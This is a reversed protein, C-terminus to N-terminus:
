RLQAEEEAETAIRVWQIRSRVLKQVDRRPLRRVTASRPNVVLVEGYLETDEGRSNVYGLRVLWEKHMALDLLDGIESPDRAIQAPRSSEPELLHLQPFPEDHGSAAPPPGPRKAPAAPRPSPHRLRGVLAPIDTPDALEGGNALIRRLQGAVGAASAGSPIGTLAALLEPDDLMESMLANPDEDRADPTPARRVAPRTLVLTGDPREAAALYGAQRLGGVVMLPEIDSVAITPALLQLRLHATKRARVVEALLAPDESRLYCAATGVRVQGFRRALDEVLYAVSQPIGKPAHDSLFAMIEDSQRGADFARRLSAESFRFTTAGGKSEMDALLDLEARVDPALEGTAIATMDAQLILERTVPPLLSDIVAVAADPNDTIMERGFSSLSAAATIALLDTEELVWAVLTEQQAPGGEWVAPAQWEVRAVLSAADVARGAPESALLDVVVQRRILAGAEPPRDLLPPIVKDKGDRAGAVSLHLPAAMWGAALEAWRSSPTLGLWRDYSATPLAVGEDLDVDALGACAAIEILRAADRESRGVLKAVRRVERIGLGGNQLLKAPEASWGDLIAAVDTVLDAATQGAQQDTQNADVPTCVVRPGSPDFSQFLRAGRLALVVEAPMTALDWSSSVLLGRRLLWGEPTRDSQAFQYNSYSMRLHPSGASLLRALADTGKPGGAVAQAVRDPSSLAEKLAAIVASKRGARVAAGLRKLIDNLAEVTHSALLEGATACLGAPHEIAEPLGPNRVITDGRRLVLGAVSLRDVVAELAQRSTVLAEALGNLGCPDPLICLAELVQRDSRNATDYWARVSAASTVGDALDDLDMPSALAVDPRQTLLEVLRDDDAQSLDRLWERREPEAFRARAASSTPM